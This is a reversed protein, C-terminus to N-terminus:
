RPLARKRNEPEAVRMLTEVKGCEADRLGVARGVSVLERAVRALDEDHDDLVVIRAVGPNMELFRAIELSRDAEADDSGLDPTAGDISISPDHARLAEETEDVGFRLRWTSTLVVSLPVGAEALHRLLAGLRRVCDGDLRDAGREPREGRAMRALVFGHHNLM